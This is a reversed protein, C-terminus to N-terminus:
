LHPLLSLQFSVTLIRSADCIRYEFNMHRPLQLKGPVGTVRTVGTAERM